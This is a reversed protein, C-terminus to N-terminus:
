LRPMVCQDPHCLLQPAVNVLTVHSTCLPIVLTDCCMLCAVKGTYTENGRQVQMAGGQCAENEDDAFEADENKLRSEFAQQTCACTSMCSYIRVHTYMHIYWSWNKLSIYVYM